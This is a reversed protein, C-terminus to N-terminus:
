YKHDFKKIGSIENLKDGEPTGNNSLLLFTKALSIGDLYELLIYGLKITSDIIYEAYIKGRYYIFRPNHLSNYFSLESIILPIFDLREELRHILRNQVYVPIDKKNISGPLKIKEDPISIEVPGLNAFALCLPYVPRPHNDIIVRHKKSIFENVEIIDRENISGEEKELYELWCLSSNMRTVVIGIALITKTITDFAQDFLAEFDTIKESYKEVLLLESIDTSDEKSKVLCDIMFFYSLVEKPSVTLRDNIKITKDSFMHEFKTFVDNRTGRDAIVDKAMRIKPLNSYGTVYMSHFSADDFLWAVEESTSYNLITSLEEKLRLSVHVNSKSLM